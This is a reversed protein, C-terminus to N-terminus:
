DDWIDKEIEDRRKDAIEKYKNVLDDNEKVFTDFEDNKGEAFANVLWDATLYYSSIEEKRLKRSKEDNKNENQKKFRDVGWVMAEYVDNVHRLERVWDELHLVKLWEMAEKGGIDKKKADKSGLANVKAVGGELDDILAKIKETQEGYTYTVLDDYKMLIGRLKNAALRRAHDFDVTHADILKKLGAVVGFRRSNRLRVFELAEDLEELILLKLREEYCGFIKPVFKMVYDYKHVLACFERHFEGQEKSNLMGFDSESLKEV